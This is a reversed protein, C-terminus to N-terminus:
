NLIEQKKNANVISVQQAINSALQMFALAQPTNDQMVAPRGADGAECISQVLPIEGLLPVDLKDALAKAGGKGFIYYKNNPLEAPTFYAM